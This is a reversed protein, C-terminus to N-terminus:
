APWLGDLYAHLRWRQDRTLKGRQAMFARLAAQPIGVQQSVWAVQDHRTRARLSDALIDTHPTM